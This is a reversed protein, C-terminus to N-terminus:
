YQLKIMDKIKQEPAHSKRFVRYIVAFSCVSLSFVHVFYQVICFIEFMQVFEFGPDSLAEPMRKLMSPELGYPRKLYSYQLPTDYFSAVMYQCVTDAALAPDLTALIKNICTHLVVKNEPENRESCATLFLAALLLLFLKKM